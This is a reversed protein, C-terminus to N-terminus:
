AMTTIPLNKKKLLHCTDKKKVRGTKMLKHSSSILKIYQQSILINPRSDWRFSCMKNPLYKM